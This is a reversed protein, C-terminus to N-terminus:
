RRVVRFRVRAPRSRNGAADVAVLVARYRGIRLARRGLRGSFRVRNLGASARRRLTGKTVWRTCRPRSSLAPSPKRCRGRVRRGPLGRQIKIRASASETLAFRFVTGRPPRSLSSLPTPAAGVAFVRNKMRFSLIGPPVTDAIAVQASRSSSNGGADTATLRATFAEPTAYSHTATPGAASSGDGFSWVASVPGWVDSVGAGFGLADGQSGGPPATFSAISPAVPDNVVAETVRTSSTVRDLAVVAHGLADVATGEHSM